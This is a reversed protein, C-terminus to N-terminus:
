FSRRKIRRPKKVTASSDAASPGTNKHQGADSANMKEGTSSDAAPKSKEKSVPASDSLSRRKVKKKKVEPPDSPASAGTGGGGSSSSKPLPSVTSGSSSGAATGSGSISRRPIKRSTPTGGGGSGSGGGSYPYYSRDQFHRCCGCGPDYYYYTPCRGYDYQSGYYSRHWWPSHQYRFWDYSFYTEACRLEPEGWINYTWYCIQKEKEIVTVTDTDRVIRTRTTDGTVSDVEIEVPKEPPPQQTYELLAFQTYCGSLVALGVTGAARVLIKKITM